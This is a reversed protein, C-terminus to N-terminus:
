HQHGLYEHRRLLMAALMAPLMLGHGAMMVAHGSVGGLWYPVLLALFPLYMALSMEVIALASHRRWLMVAVMGITMNTAMVMANVTVDDAYGPWALSWLPALAFMGAFMAVTMEVFHRVFHLWPRAPATHTQATM